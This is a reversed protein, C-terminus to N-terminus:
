LKSRHNNLIEFYRVLQKERDMIGKQDYVMILNNIMRKLIDRPKCRSLYSDQFGYGAHLLYRTCELRTMMKGKNFPDVYIEVDDIEYKVLFHGPMGVGYLPLHLRRGLFIYLCALSIPIGVKRDLLRNIFSNDPDYYNGKNGAFGQEKFLFDNLKKVIVEHDDKSYIRLALELAMDDLAKSCQAVELDPYAFRALLFVGEELDFRKDGRASLERFETELQEWGFKQLLPRLRKRSAGSAKAIVDRLVSKSQAFVQRLQSEALSQVKPDDDDLFTILIQTEKESLTKM